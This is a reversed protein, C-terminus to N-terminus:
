KHAHAKRQAEIEKAPDILVVRYKGPRAPQALQEKVTIWEEEREPLEIDIEEPILTFLQIFVSPKDETEGLAKELKKIRTELTM